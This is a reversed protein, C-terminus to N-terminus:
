NGVNRSSHDFHARRLVRRVLGDPQAAAPVETWPLTHAHHLEGGHECALREAVMWTGSARDDAHDQATVVVADVVLPTVVEVPACGCHDARARGSRSRNACLADRAEEAHAERADLLEEGVDAALRDAARRESISAAGVFAVM